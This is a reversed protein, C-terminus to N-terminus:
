ETVGLAGLSIKVGLECDTVSELVLAVPTLKEACVQV